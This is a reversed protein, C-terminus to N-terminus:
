QLRLRYFGKLASPPTNTWASGSLPGGVPQWGGPALAPNFDCVRRHTLREM